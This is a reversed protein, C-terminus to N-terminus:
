IQKLQNESLNFNSQVLTLQQNIIAIWGAPLGELAGTNKNKKVHFNHTVSTPRSIVSPGDGSSKNKRFLKKVRLVKEIFSFM